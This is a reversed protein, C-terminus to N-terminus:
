ALYDLIQGAPITNLIGMCIGFANKNATRQTQKNWFHAAGLEDTKHLCEFSLSVPAIATPQAGIPSSSIIRCEIRKKV